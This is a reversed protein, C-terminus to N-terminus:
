INRKLVIVGTGRKNPLRFSVDEIVDAISAAFAPDQGEYDEGCLGYAGEETKVIKYTNGIGDKFGGIEYAASDKIEGTYNNLYIPEDCVESISWYGEAIRYAYFLLLEEVTALDSEYNPAFKIAEMEWEIDSLGVAVPAGESYTLRGVFDFSPEIIAIAYSYCVRTLAKEIKELFDKQEETTATAKEPLWASVKNLEEVGMKFFYKKLAETM